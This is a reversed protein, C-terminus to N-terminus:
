RRYCYMNFIIIVIIIIRKKNRLCLLLASLTLIVELFYCFVTQIDGPLISSKNNMNQYFEATLWRSTTGRQLDEVVCQEASYGELQGNRRSNIRGSTFFFVESAGSHAANGNKHNFAPAYIM